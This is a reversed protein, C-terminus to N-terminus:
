PTLAGTRHDDPLDIVFPLDHAAGQSLLLLLHRKMESRLPHRQHLDGLLDPTRRRHHPEHDTDPPEGLPNRIVPRWSRAPQRDNFSNEVTVRSTATFPPAFGLIPRQESVMASVM